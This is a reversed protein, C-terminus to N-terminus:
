GQPLEGAQGEDTEVKAQNLKMDSMFSKGELRTLRRAIYLIGACLLVLLAIILESLRQTLAIRKGTAALMQQTQKKSDEIERGLQNAQQRIGADLDNAKSELASQSRQLRILIDHDPSVTETPKKPAHASTKRGTQRARSHEPNAVAVSPASLVALWSLFAVISILGSLTRDQSRATRM